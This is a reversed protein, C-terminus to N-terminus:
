SEEPALRVSAVALLRSTDAERVVVDAIEEEPAGERRWPRLGITLTAGVDANGFYGVRYDPVRRRLFERDGRGSDRWWELVAGDVVSFYAGFYALGVGNFDRAPDLRYTTVREAGAPTFGPVGQPHFSASTRAVACAGRPSHRDPPKPLHTHRFDAPAAAVLARNGPNSGRSVWRNINQVYACGPRRREYFEDVDLDGPPVAASEWALRHLTLVSGAGLDLVRSTVELEDGFTLRYPDFAPGAMVHFYYFSLYTPLGAPTRAAYVDTGCAERVADWTWDGIRGFLRASSGCMAPTVKVRRTSLGSGPVHGLANGITM